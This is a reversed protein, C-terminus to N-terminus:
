KNKQSDYSQKIIYMVDDLQNLDSLYLECDGNCLHGISTIDRCIGKPDVVDSFKMNIVLYLRKQQFVIDVFNTDLKYAVYLKKFERTIGKSLNMIRENLKEYLQLTFSNTQYTDISYNNDNLQTLEFKAFVPDNFDDPADAFAKEIKPFTEEFYLTLNNLADNYYKEKDDYTEMPKALSISKSMMDWKKKMIKYRGGLIKTNIAFNHWKERLSQDNSPGIMPYINVGNYIFNQIEIAILDEIKDWEGNGHLGVKKRM